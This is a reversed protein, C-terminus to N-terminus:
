NLNVSSPESEAVRTVESLEMTGDARVGSVFAYDYGEDVLDRAYDCASEYDGFLRMTAFSQGDHDHGGITAFQSFAYANDKTM